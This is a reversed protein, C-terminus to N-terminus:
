WYKQSLKTSLGVTGTQSKRVRTDPNRGFDVDAIACIDISYLLMASNWAAISSQVFIFRATYAFWPQDVYNLVVDWMEKKVTRGSMQKCGGRLGKPHQLKPMM